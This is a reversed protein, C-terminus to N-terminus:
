ATPRVTFREFVKKLIVYPRAGIGSATRESPGAVNLTVIANTRLWTDIESVANIDSPDCILLPREYRTACGATWDTGPDSRTTVPPRLILTADADRVNWETRQSRPVEPAEPSRDLPVRCCPVIHVIVAGKHCACACTATSM